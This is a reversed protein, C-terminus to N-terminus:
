TNESFLNEERMDDYIEIATLGTPGQRRSLILPEELVDILRNLEELSTIEIHWPKDSGSRLAGPAPPEASLMASASTRKILFMM